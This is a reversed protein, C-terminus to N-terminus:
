GLRGILNLNVYPSVWTPDPEYNDVWDPVAEAPMPRAIGYGQALECNMALLKVGHEATEVGEAVVKRNFERALSLVGSVIALDEPDRLMDRVFSQDIKVVDAPLRRLYTLSSYGAGFDDLAFTVGLLSRCEDILASVSAFDELSASETIELELMKSPMDPHRALMDALRSTFNFKMLHRANINVSIPLNIDLARWEQMQRLAEQIVWEGVDVSLDNNEIAPLFEMPPRLGLTPHQWRILAEFGIITGQRMNVKPQYYLRFEGNKLAVQIADLAEHRARTQRDNEADFLHYANKGGLKAQYMAQDAHRLLLDPNAEDPPSITMGASASVTVPTGNILYPAAIIGLLRELTQCCEAPSRLECLLIAFEDGGLRAVTDGARLSNRLRQALQVLLQDGAEHGMNDNIPKFGDLDFYCVGLIEDSREIRALAQQLRDSFLARNPLQTLPDHYAMRELKQQQEVVHTIDSFVGVFRSAKGLDDHVAFVDLWAAFTVGNKGALETEGRWSGAESLVKWIEAFRDHNAATSLLEHVTRGSAEEHSHGTISSFSPNSEIIRAQPDAIFIADHAHEFVSASLSLKEINSNLTDVMERLSRRMRIMNAILTGDKAMLGDEELHGASISSVLDGALEPDGGLPKLVFHNLLYIVLAVLLGGLGIFILMTGYTNAMATTSAENAPYALVVEFDWETIPKRVLVWETGNAHLLKAAESSATHASLFRIRKNADLVAAFGTNLVRTTKVAEQLVQMDVKFGVYWAGIVVGTSDIMPEYGTIYPTGLIDVVGYFPKGMRLAAIAKGQPDLQTGVARTGDSKKVNTSIRIFDDGSKVFLTATGDMVSAVNDVLEFHNTQAQKGLTLNFLKRDNLIVNGNIGPKGFQKEGSNKLLRMSAVVREMILQESVTLLRALSEAQTRAEADIGAMERSFQRQAFVLPGLIAILVIPILFRRLTSYIKM